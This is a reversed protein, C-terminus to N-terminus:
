EPEKPPGPTLGPEQRQQNINSITRPRTFMMWLPVRIFTDKIDRFTFPSFPSLYPTGFSRVSCMHILIILLGIIIGFAGLVGALIVLMLRLPTVADYHTVVLFSSIGTIAVVIVMPAGIIGASVAADGIILAGVISLAQGVPGPLRIGGERLIEFVVGMALSELVAPFPTGESAAAMTILLPTPILEQHFTTLAVYTSPALLTIFFALFRISRIFSSTFPRSYYDEGAQFGEIFLMPVTLVIPTGDVLIAVRGELIRAAVTDPKESNGVTSFLCFPTDEIFQEIYGSELIADTKIRSLRNKVEAVVKPNVIGEIYALAVYTGTKDGIVMQEITLDPSQIKRRLMATNFRITETFGERPGRVVRETPPESIGRSQWGKTDIILAETYGDVLMVTDGYLFRSVVTNVSTDHQVDGVSLLIHEIDEINNIGLKKDQILHIDYMLPKIISDNIIKKDAMGDLFLLAANVDDQQGFTFERVIIDSSTGVINELLKLNENLDNSFVAPTEEATDKQANNKSQNLTRIYKLKNSLYRM